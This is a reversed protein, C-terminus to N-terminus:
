TLRGKPSTQHPKNKVEILEALISIAIEEPTEAFINAGIPMHVKELQKKSTIDADLFMKKTIEIKRKSGIMGLYAHPKNICYSLIDRDIEHEYTLIVVFTNEDFPLTPLVKKYDVQFKNIATVEKLQDIYEKRDDLIFIEFDLSLAFKALAQGTHGAGFIYLRKMKEIPEIFIEVTGGCCM